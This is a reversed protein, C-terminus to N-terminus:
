RCESLLSKLQSIVTSANAEVTGYQATEYFTLFRAVAFKREASLLSGPATLRLRYDRPGEHINRPYGHRAMLQCLNAYIVDIPQRKQRNLVLPLTIITLVITGVAFLLATLTRWDVEDFGFKRVFNKQYEPNFNLVRQNWANTVADWNIRLKALLTNKGFTLNVLSNLPGFTRSPLITALNQEIRSPAVAATPDVRVWGQNQLWVEAWAHADSQRVVLYGDVSNIAGGQYGTVVRAPIGAARMLIVFASAYHECFGARTSFLFEDIANTGLLPPELTYRFPQERFFRLVANILQPNNDYQARLRRAFELSAPNYGSPLRLANRLVLDSENTQLNFDVYSAVDYRVRENIAQQTLLQGGHTMRVANATRSNGSLVPPTEPLELAFLWPHGNPELTVQQRIPTGHPILEISTDFRSRMAQQTWTRGDYDTLVVGRWYLKPKPPAPDIFKVRFAIEDSQALSSINGPAMSDSLGTRSAHADGPLGWLPGQIRPFLLFLVLMLPASLAVIFACLGIRRKLPPVTGTYQFTLQATLIALLSMLTMLATGITQTYLFNVLMLFFSLFIVVFLDRKAHMELLKLTLLLTLMAVGSDQGLFTRFTVYVGGMAATAIPILLWRPPLRTGSFTIWGRWILLAACVATCWPPVHDSHPLLVLTCAVLLLLTDSKDRSMPRMVNRALGEFTSRSLPSRM